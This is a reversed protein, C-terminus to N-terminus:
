RGQETSLRPANARAVEVPQGQRRVRRLGALIVAAGVPFYLGAITASLALVIVLRVIKTRWGSAFRVAPTRLVEIIASLWIVWAFVNWLLIAVADVWRTM